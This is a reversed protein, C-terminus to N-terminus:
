TPEECPYWNWQPNPVTRVDVQGALVLSEAVGPDAGGPPMTEYADVADEASGFYALWEWGDGDVWVDWGPPWLDPRASWALWEWSNEDRISAWATM